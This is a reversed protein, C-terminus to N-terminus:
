DEEVEGMVHFGIRRAKEAGVRVAKLMVNLQSVHQVVTVKCGEQDVGEFRIRDMGIPCLSHPFIMTGAPGGIIVLRAEEDANLTKEFYDIDTVLGAVADDAQALQSAAADAITRRQRAERAAHEMLSHHARMMSNDFDVM